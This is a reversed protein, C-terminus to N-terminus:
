MGPMGPMGPKGGSPAPPSQKGEGHPKAEMMKSLAAQLNSESNILFEASTVVRDGEKLGELVEFEDAAKL